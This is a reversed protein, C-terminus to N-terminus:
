SEMTHLLRSCFTKQASTRYKKLLM